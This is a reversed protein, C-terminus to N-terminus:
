VQMRMIEQYADMLKNRVQKMAQFSVNAKQMAIMVEAINTNADGAEFAQTLEGAKKQTENVASLSQKLLDPFGSSGTAQSPENIGQAKAAMVRMQALVQSIETESM